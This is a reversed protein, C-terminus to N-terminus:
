DESSHRKDYESVCGGCFRLNSKFFGHEDTPFLRNQILLQIMNIQRKGKLTKKTVKSTKTTHQVNLQMEKVITKVEDM